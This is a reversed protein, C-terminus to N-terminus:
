ISVDTKSIRLTKLDLLYIELSSYHVEEEDYLSDLDPEDVYDMGYLDWYDEITEFQRKKVIEQKYSYVPIVLVHVKCNDTKINMCKHSRGSFPYAEQKSPKVSFVDLRDVGCDISEINQNSATNYYMMTQNDIAVFTDNSIYFVEANQTNRSIEQFIWMKYSSVDLIGAGSKESSQVHYNFCLFQPSIWYFGSFRSIQFEANKFTCFSENKRLDYITFYESSISSHDRVMLIIYSEDPSLFAQQPKDKGFSISKWNFYASQESSPQQYKTLKSYRFQSTQPDNTSKDYLWISRRNKAIDITCNIIWHDGIMKCKFCMYNPHVTSM